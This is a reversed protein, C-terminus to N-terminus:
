MQKWALGTFAHEPWTWQKTSVPMAEMSTQWSITEAPHHFSWENVRPSSTVTLPSNTMSVGTSDPREPSVVKDTWGVM